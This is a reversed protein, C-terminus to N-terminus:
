PVKVSVVPSYNYKNNANNTRAAVRTYYTNGSVVERLTDSYQTALANDDSIASLNHVVSMENVINSVSPYVSALSKTESIKDGVRTRAIQYKMILGNASTSATMNVTLFPTVNFNATSAAGLDVLLTDAPFFAGEIAVVKYKGPYLDANEFSGDPKTWFDFPTPNNYSQELLRIKIGNPQETQFPKATVADMVNGSITASPASHNDLEKACSSILVTTTLICYLFISIRM